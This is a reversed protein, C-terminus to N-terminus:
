GQTNPAKTRLVIIGPKGSIYKKFDQDIVKRHKKLSSAHRLYIKDGDKIIIGVHSVDLGKLTSYIGVYDGTKLKSLVSNDISESPIYKIERKVTQIGPLFYTKDKKQNLTKKVRIMNEAGIEETIDDIFDSNFERWDTFFHNRNEFTVIGSKYRVNRLNVKFESFSCSLRMAEIYEIFTFCDVGKLNIVFVEPTNTDGILTSEIYDLDLFKRSLFYIRKGTDRIESAKRIIQDLGDKSFMGLDILKEYMTIM